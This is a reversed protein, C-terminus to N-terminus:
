IEQIQSISNGMNVARSLYPDTCLAKVPLQTRLRFQQVSLALRLSFWLREFGIIINYHIALLAAEMGKACWISYM